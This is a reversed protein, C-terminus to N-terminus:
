VKLYKRTSVATVIGSVLASGLVTVATFKFAISAAPILGGVGLATLLTMQSNIVMESLSEYVLYTIVASVAGAFLGILTGEVFFPVRIFSNKAGVLKMITIERQRISVSARATNSVVIICVALLAAMVVSSVITFVNRLDTLVGIFENPASVTDVGDIRTIAMLTPSIKTIDAVTVRFSDPLPSEGIYDFLEDANPIRSKMSEFGEDKSYFTVKAVNGVASIEQGIVEIRTQLLGDKLFVIVENKDEVDGIVANVNILVLYTFGILMVSVLLICFSALSMVRNSGINKAGQKMLYTFGSIRM